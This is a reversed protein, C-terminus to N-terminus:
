CISKSSIPYRQIHEHVLLSLKKMVGHDEAAAHRGVKARELEEQFSTKQKEKQKEMEEEWSRKQKELEEQHKEEWSKKRKELEEQFIEELAGEQKALEMQLRDEWSKKRAELDEKHMQALEQKLLTVTEELRMEATKKYEELEKKCEEVQSELMRNEDMFFDKRENLETIEAEYKLILEERHQDVEEIKTRKALVTEVESLRKNQRERAVEEEQLREKLSDYEKRLEQHKNQQQQIQTGQELIKRRQKEDSAMWGKEMEEISKFIQSMSQVMEGVTRPFTAVPTDPGEAEVETDM